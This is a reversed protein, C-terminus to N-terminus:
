IIKFSRQSYLAHSVIEIYNQEAFKRHFNCNVVSMYVQPTWRNMESSVKNKDIRSVCKWRIKIEPSNTLMNQANQYARTKKLKSFCKQVYFFALPFFVYFMSYNSAFM